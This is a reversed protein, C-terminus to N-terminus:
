IVDIISQTRVQGTFVIIRDTTQDNITQITQRLITLFDGQLVANVQFYLADILVTDDFHQDRNRLGGFFVNGATGLKRFIVFLFLVRVLM